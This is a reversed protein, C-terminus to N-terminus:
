KTAPAVSYGTGDFKTEFYTGRLRFDEPLPVAAHPNPAFQFDAGM